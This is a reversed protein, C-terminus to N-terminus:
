KTGTETNSIIGPRGMCLHEQLDLSSSWAHMLVQCFQGLRKLKWEMHTRTMRLLLGYSLPENGLMTKLQSLNSGLLDNWLYTSYSRGPSRLGSYSQQQQYYSVNGCGTHYEHMKMKKQFEIFVLCTKAKLFSLMAGKFDGRLLFPSIYVIEFFMLFWIVECLLGTLEHWESCTTVIIKSVKNKPHTSM